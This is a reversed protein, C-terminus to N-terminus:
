LQEARGVDARGKEHAGRMRVYIRLPRKACAEIGITILLAYPSYAPHELAGLLGCQILRDWSVGAAVTDLGIARDRMLARPLQKGPKRDHHSM